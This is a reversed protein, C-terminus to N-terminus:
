KIFKILLSKNVKYRLLTILYVEYIVDQQTHLFRLIHGEVCCIFSPDYELSSLCINIQVENVTHM